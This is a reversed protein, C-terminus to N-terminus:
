FRRTRNVYEERDKVKHGQEKPKRKEECRSLNEWTRGERRGRAGWGGNVGVKEGVAPNLDFVNKHENSTGL